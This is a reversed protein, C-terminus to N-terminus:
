PHWPTRDASAGPAPLPTSPFAGHPCHPPAQQPVPKQKGEQKQDLTQSLPSPPPDPKWGRSGLLACVWGAGCSSLPGPLSRLAGSSSVPATQLVRRLRVTAGAAWRVGKWTALTTGAQSPQALLKSVSLVYNHWPLRVGASLVLRTEVPPSKLLARSPSCHPFPFM